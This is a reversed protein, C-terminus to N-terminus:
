VEEQPQPLPFAPDDVGGGSGGAIRMYREHTDNETNGAFTRGPDDSATAQASNRFGKFRIRGQDMGFIPRNPGLGYCMGNGQVGEGDMLNQDMLSTVTPLLLSIGRDKARGIWYEVCCRGAEYETKGPYNFDLGYLRLTGYKGSQKKYEEQCLIAFAIAYAPGSAFYYDNFTEFVLQWPYEYCNAIEKVYRSTVVPKTGDKYVDLFSVGPGAMNAPITLDRMNFSLDHQYLKAGVNFTWVERKGKESFNCTYVDQHLQISSMGMGVIVIEECAYPMLVRAGPELTHEPNSPVEAGEMGLLRKAAGLM